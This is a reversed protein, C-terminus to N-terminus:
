TPVTPTHRLNELWEELSVLKSAQKTSAHLARDLLRDLLQMM